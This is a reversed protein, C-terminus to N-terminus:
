PCRRANAFFADVAEVYEVPALVTGEPNILAGDLRAFGDTGDGDYTMVLRSGKANRLTVRFSDSLLAFRPYNVIAEVFAVTAWQGYRSDSPKRTEHDYLAERTCTTIEADIQVRQKGRYAQIDTGTVEIKPAYLGARAQLNVILDRAAQTAEAATSVGRGRARVDVSVNFYTGEATFSPTGLHAPDFTIRPLRAPLTPPRPAEPQTAATARPAEYQLRLCAVADLDLPVVFLHGVSTDPHEIMYAVVAKAQPDNVCGTSVLEVADTTRTGLRVSTAGEAQPEEPGGQRAPGGDDAAASDAPWTELASMLAGRLCWRMIIQVSMTGEGEYQKLRRCM